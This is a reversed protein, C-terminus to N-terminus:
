HSTTASPGFSLDPLYRIIRRELRTVLPGAKQTLKAMGEPGLAREIPSGKTLEAYDNILTLTMYKNADDGFVVQAVAYYSVGGKKLAPVVDSKLLAEFDQTRGSAANVITLIALKPPANAPRTGFGLDPRTTVITSHSSAVLRRNKASYEAFAQEGLAKVFPNPSDFQAISAIPIVIARLYPDGGPGNAWVDRGRTAVKKQTDLVSKQLEAWEPATEPKLSIENIMLLQRQQPESASQARVLSDSSALWLSACVLSVVASLRAFRTM